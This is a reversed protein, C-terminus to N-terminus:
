KFNKKFLFMKKGDNRSFVVPINEFSNEKNEKGKEKIKIIKRSGSWGLEFGLDEVLQGRLGQM